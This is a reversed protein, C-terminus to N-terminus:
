QIGNIGRKNVEIKTNKLKKKKKGGNPSDVNNSEFRNHHGLLTYYYHVLAFCRKMNDQSIRKLSTEAFDNYLHLFGFVIYLLLSAKIALTMAWIIVDCSQVCCFIIDHKKDSDVTLLLIPLNVCECLCVRM